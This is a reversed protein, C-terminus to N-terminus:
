LWARRNRRSTSELETITLAEVRKESPKSYPRPASIALQTVPQFLIGGATKERLAGPHDLRHCELLQSLEGSPTPAAGPRELVILHTLELINRWRHWGPLDNFADRGLLLCLPTAGMGARLSALTDVMYSPGERRLERDDAIFEPQGAIAQQLLLWRQAPTAVPQGRHAPQRCPIFRVQALELEELVELAIRLHGHHVPDFTGGLIGVPGGASWPGSLIARPQRESM